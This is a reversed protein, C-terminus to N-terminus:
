LSNIILSGIELYNNIDNMWTTMILLCNFSSCLKDLELKCDNGRLLAMARMSSLPSASADEFERQSKEWASLWQERARPAHTFAPAHGSREENEEERKNCWKQPDMM